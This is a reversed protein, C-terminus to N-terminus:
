VFKIPFSFMSNKCAIRTAILIRLQRDQLDHKKSLVITDGIVQCFQIRMPIVFCCKLFCTADYDGLM